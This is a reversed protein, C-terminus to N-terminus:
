PTIKRPRCPASPHKGKPFESSVLWLDYPSLPNHNSHGWTLVGQVTAIYGLQFLREWFERGHRDSEPGCSFSTRSRSPRRSAAATNWSCLCRATLHRATLVHEGAKTTRPPPCAPAEEARALGGGEADRCGPGPRGSWPWPCGSRRRPMGLKSTPHKSHILSTCDWSTRPSAVTGMRMPGLSGESDLGDKCTGTRGPKGWRGDVKARVELGASRLGLALCLLLAKCLM